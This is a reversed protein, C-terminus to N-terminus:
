SFISINCICFLSLGKKTLLFEFFVFVNKFVFCNVNNEKDRNFSLESLPGYNECYSRLLETSVNCLNGIFVQRSCVFISCCRHNTKCVREHSRGCTCSLIFSIKKNTSSFMYLSCFSLFFSRFFISRSNDSSPCLKNQFVFCLFDIIIIIIVPTPM